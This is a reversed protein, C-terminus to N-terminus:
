IGQLGYQYSLDLADARPISLIASAVHDGAPITLIISHPERATWEHHFKWIEEFVNPPVLFAEEIQSRAYLGELFSKTIEGRPLNAVMKRVQDRAIWGPPLSQRELYIGVNQLLWRFEEAPLLALGTISITCFVLAQCDLERLKSWRLETQHNHDKSALLKKMNFSMRRVPLDKMRRILSATSNLRKQVAIQTLLSSAKAHMDEFTTDDVDRLNFTKEGLEVARQSFGQSM